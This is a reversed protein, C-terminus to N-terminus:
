TEHTDTAGHILYLVPYKKSGRPDYGPPTYIVLPRIDNLVSSTYYRYAIKGHPVDTVSYLLPKEGQIDVLSNKFRENPFILVNNPDTVATGDVIFSYPYLDPEVAQTTISWVGDEDKTMPAKEKLFQASLEVRTAQSAHFRFTVQGDTHVQPSVIPEKRQVYVQDVPLTLLLSLLALIHTIKKM